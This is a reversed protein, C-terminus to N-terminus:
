RSPVDRPFQRLYSRVLRVCASWTPHSKFTRRAALSLIALQDRDIYLTAVINALGESDGPQLLYGNDGHSIFDGAGGAASAIPPLGFGMAELYVIGFGEYQSPVVLLQGDELLTTLEGSTRTGLFKVQKEIGLVGCLRIMKRSYRVDVELDGAISLSWMERPLRALAKLLIDLGKRPILNGVFVLKLPGPQQARRAIERDTIEPNLHDGGPPAVVGPLNVLANVSKQTSKSNFIVGDLTKLYSGEILRYFERLRSTESSRLHHVIAVLPYSARRKLEQNILFLSPHNLEDQLLIDYPADTLQARLRPSFNDLLHRPYDRYPLSIVEVEDGAQKFGKVLQRDYLYGGSRSDLSRYILFGLRM